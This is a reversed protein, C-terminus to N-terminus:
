YFYGTLVASGPMGARNEDSVIVLRHDLLDSESEFFLFYENELLKLKGTSVVGVMAGDHNQEVLWTEYTKKPDLDSSSVSMTYLFQGEHYVRKAVGFYRETNIGALYTKETWSKQLNPSLFSENSAEIKEAKKISGFIYYSSLAVMLLLILTTKIKEVM